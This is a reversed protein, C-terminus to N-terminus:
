RTILFASKVAELQVRARTVENGGDGIIQSECGSIEGTHPDWREMALKGRLRVWVDVPGDSSNGFFYVERGEIVKHIYSLNGGTVKVDQEMTVDFVVATDDLIAKFVGATPAAAFYAKGGGANAHVSSSAESKALNQGKDDLVEFEKISVSDSAIADIYLRVKSATIAPFTDGKEEGLKEGGACNVWTTGNWAQIRYAQTRGFAEQVVTRSFTRASGFDVELWQDGQTGDAANWRTELNGDIAMAPDHGGAKWASSASAKPFQSHQGANPGFIKSVLQRVEQDKGREAATDPLRTTAIVKGGADCFAKIKKLVGLQITQSGPLIFVKYRQPQLKNMLRLESDGVTCKEELVEPHIFTFDRRVALSLLEGVDMYDAEAPIIGGDYPKLPGEFHYGGQLTAIPYLVAIDAVHRGGQLMRQLRGIYENYASLEPGYVVSGPSLDPQFVIKEPLYWVAHPVMVNIGKAFQDMAEKYLNAVPMKNIGGYCETLVLPRDYNIAASSVIKYAKSARGYQFVQDIAPIDQHKFSKMLDGCLGVPNVIEEQDVHGTLQIRHERCWDNLVKPFGLSYLEARFGLLANRAAATEPGIDFWLAPYDIAPYRGREAKFKENFAPTWARGGKVWHFTPEDYFASDITTGFHKSFKDFYAQYTLTIFKKVAEPDLYDVLGRNGDRVCTFLMIKWQGAPMNWALKEQGIQGTLDVRKKTSREMAVAAMLKGPPLAQEIPKPGTVDIALMDLRNSLAEPFRKALLGGASGSPFWYEDYLCLKMGLRAAEEVAVQYQDLYEATMFGPTMGPSPLIGVGFYGRKRCAQLIERTKAADLPGNWFWLPRSKFREPPQAFDTRIKQWNDAREHPAQAHSSLPPAIALIVACLGSKLRTVFGRRNRTIRGTHTYGM